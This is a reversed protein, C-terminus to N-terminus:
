TKTGSGDGNSGANRSGDSNSGNVEVSSPVVPAASALLEKGRDKGSAELTPMGDNSNPM